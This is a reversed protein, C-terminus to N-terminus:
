LFYMSVMERQIYIMSPVSLVMTEKLKNMIIFNVGSCETLFNFINQLSTSHEASRILCNEKFFEFIEFGDSSM